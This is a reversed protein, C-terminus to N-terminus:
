DLEDLFLEIATLTAATRPDNHKAGPVTVFTKPQNARDFLKQGQSYPVVEDVDGHFQLLPGRYNGIKIGSEFRNRMCLKVPLWPFHHKAVEPLSHFTNEVILGRAGESALDIAVAGGISEGWLVVQDEPVNVRKALWARAARADALIGPGNPSGESRGYGRYDFLLASVKMEAFLTMLHRRVAINGANGHCFLVVPRGPEGELYWGHLKTGDAATFWADRVGSPLEWDGQPYRSPFFLLSNEFFVFAVVILLYAIVVFRV